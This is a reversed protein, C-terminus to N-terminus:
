YTRVELITGKRPFILILSLIGITNHHINFGPELYLQVLVQAAGSIEVDFAYAREMKMKRKKPFFRLSKAISSRGGGTCALTFLFSQATIVNNPPRRPKSPVSVPTGGRGGGEERSWLGGWVATCLLSPSSAGAGRRPREQRRLWANAEM